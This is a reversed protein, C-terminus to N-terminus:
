LLFVTFVNLPWKRGQLQLINLAYSPPPPPSTCSSSDNHPTLSGSLAPPLSLFPHYATLICLPQPLLADDSSCLVNKQRPRWRSSSCSSPIRSVTRQIHCVSTIFIMHPSQGNALNRKFWLCLAYLPLPNKTTVPCNSSLHPRTDCVKEGVFGGLWHNHLAPCNTDDVANYLEEDDGVEYPSHKLCNRNNQM